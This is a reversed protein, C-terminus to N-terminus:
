DQILLILIISIFVGSNLIGRLVDTLIFQNDDCYTYIITNCGSMIAGINGDNKARYFPEVYIDLLTQKDMNSSSAKRYKEKDNGFILKIAANSKRKTYRKNNPCCM